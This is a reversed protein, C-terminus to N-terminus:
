VTEGFGPVTAAEDDDDWMATLVGDGIDVPGYLAEVEPLPWSPCECVVHPRGDVMECWVEVDDPNFGRANGLLTIRALLWNDYATCFMAQDAEEHGALVMSVIEPRVPEARRYRALIHACEVGVEALERPMLAGMIIDVFKNTQSSFDSALGMEVLARAIKEVRTM